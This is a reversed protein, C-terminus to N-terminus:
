YYFLVLDKMMDTVVNNAVHINMSYILAPGGLCKILMLVVQM